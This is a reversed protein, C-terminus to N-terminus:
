QQLTLSLSSWWSLGWDHYIPRRTSTQVWFMSSYFNEIM